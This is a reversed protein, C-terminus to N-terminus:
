KIISSGITKIYCYSVLCICWKLCYSIHHLWNVIFCLVDAVSWVTVSMTYCCNVLPLVELQTNNWQFSLLHYAAFLLYSCKCFRAVYAALGLLLQCWKHMFQSSHLFWHFSQLRYQYILGINTCLNNCSSYFEVRMTMNSSTWLNGVLPTM